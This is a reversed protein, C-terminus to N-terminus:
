TLASIYLFSLPVVADFAFGDGVEAENMERSAKYAGEYLKSEPASRRAKKRTKKIFSKKDPM